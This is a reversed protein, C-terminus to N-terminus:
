SGSVIPQDEDILNAGRYVDILNAGRYVVRSRPRRKFPWRMSGNRRRDAVDALEEGLAFPLVVAIDGSM